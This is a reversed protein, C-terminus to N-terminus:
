TASAQRLQQQIAQVDSLLRRIKPLDEQVSRTIQGADGSQVAAIFNSLAPVGEEYSRILRQHTDELGAPPDVNRLEELGQRAEKEAQQAVNPDLSVSVNGGDVQVDVNAVKAVDRATDELIPQVQERYERVAAPEANIEPVPENGGGLGPIPVSCGTLLLISLLAPFAIAFKKL